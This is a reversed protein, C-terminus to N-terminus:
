NVANSSPVKLGRAASAFSADASSVGERNQCESTAAWSQYAYYYNGSVVGNPYKETYLQNPSVPDKYDKPVRLIAGVAGSGGINNSNPDCSEHDLSQLSVFVGSPLGDSNKPFGTGVVYYADKIGDSLPLAMGWEKIDLYAATPEPEKTVPQDGTNQSVNGTASTSVTKNNQYVFWGVGGLLGAVLVILLIVVIGFGAKNKTLNAM